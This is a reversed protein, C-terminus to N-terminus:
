AWDFLQAFSTQPRVLKLMQLHMQELFGLGNQFERLQPTTTVRGNEIPITRACDGSNRHRTPSLDITDLNSRGLQEQRPQN